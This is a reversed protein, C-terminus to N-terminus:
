LAKVFLYNTRDILNAGAGSVSAKIEILDGAACNEVTGFRLTFRGSDTSTDYYAEEVAVGNKTIHIQFRSGATMASVTLAGEVILGCAYPVTIVGTTANFQASWGTPVINNKFILATLTSAFKVGTDAEGKYTFARYSSNKAGAGGAKAVTNGYIAALAGASADIVTNGTDNQLRYDEVHIGAINANAVGFDYLVVTSGKLADIRHLNGRMLGSTAANKIKVHSLQADVGHIENKSIFRNKDLQVFGIYDAEFGADFNSDIEVQEVYANSPTVGLHREYKIGSGSGGKGNYACAGKIFRLGSGDVLYGNRRNNVVYCNNFEWSASGQGAQSHVGDLCGVIDTDIVRWSVSAWTDPNANLDTRNPLYIGHKGLDRLNCRDVQYGWAGVTQIGCVNSDATAMGFKVNRILGNKQFQNLIGSGNISLMPKGNPFAVADATFDAVFETGPDMDLFLGSVNGSTHYNITDTIRIKGGGEIRKKGGFETIVAQIKATDDAIGDAVVGYDKLNVHDRLKDTLKRINTSLPTQVFSIEDTGNKSDLTGKFADVKTQAASGAEAAKATAIGAQAAAESAKSAATDKAANSAQQTSLVQETLATTNSALTDVAAALQEYSM